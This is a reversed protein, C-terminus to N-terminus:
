LTILEPTLLWRVTYGHGQAKPTLYVVGAHQFAIVGTTENGAVLLSSLRDLFPLHGVIAVTRPGDQTQESLWQATPKVPDLPDLGTHAEVKEIINLRDALIEATQQARLKGSHFVRDFSIGVRALHEGVMEVMKRGDDTLPRAPDEEKSKSEAHQILYVELTSVLIWVLTQMFTTALFAPSVRIASRGEHRLSSDKAL